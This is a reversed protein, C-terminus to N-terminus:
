TNSQIIYLKYHSFAALKSCGQSLRQEKKLSTKDPVDYVRQALHNLSLATGELKEVNAAQESNGSGGINFKDKSISMKVSLWM